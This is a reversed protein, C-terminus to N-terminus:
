LMPFCWPLCRVSTFTRDEPYQTIQPFFNTDDTMCEQIFMYFVKVEPPADFSLYDELISLVM